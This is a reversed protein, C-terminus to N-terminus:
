KFRAPYHAPSQGSHPRGQGRTAPRSTGPHSQCQAQIVVAGGSRDEKGLSCLMDRGGSCPMVTHGIATM